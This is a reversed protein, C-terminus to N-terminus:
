RSLGSRGGDQRYGFLKERKIIEAAQPPVMKEWSPDGAQIKHLVQSPYIDLQDQHFERVAEIQHRELLHAYLHESGAPVALGETGVLKGDRTFMPYVYLKVKDRFLRGLGELLGGDLDAYYKENFIEILTPAGLVMAIWNQTYKRLHGIVAHFRPYNSVMVTKGLAAITDVRALFDNHDLEAMLNNLTMEMLVVVDSSEIGANGHMQRLACDLMDRTVNTVPRFSGRELLVPKGALVESPQVVEGDVTFMAANTLRQEVLQLSMLRNDVERFAPGAFKILDVEMRGPRLGHKLSGILKIPDEPHFFASHILNVGVRGLVGQQAISSQDLLQVHAVIESPESRPETQFRLGMWGHGGTSHRTAATVAFAFFSTSEGRKHDSRKLLQPYDHDLMAQLRQRSVYHETSGYVEDSVATDYASVSKAVTSSADGARFFWRVVEQGAGIEAFSGFRRKSLNIALAKHRPLIEDEPPPTNL